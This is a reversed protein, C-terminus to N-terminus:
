KIQQALTQLQEATSEIAPTPLQDAIKEMELLEDLQENKIHLQACEDRLEIARSLFFHKFYKSRLLAWNKLEETTHPMHSIMMGRYQIGQVGERWGHAYLDNLIDQSLTLIRERLNGLAPAIEIITQPRQQSPTPRVSPRHPTKDFAIAPPSPPHSRPPYDLSVAEKSGLAKTVVFWYLSFTGAGILAVIVYSMKKKGATLLKYFSPAWSRIISSRSLGDMTIFVFICFWIQQLYPGVDFQLRKLTPEIVIGGVNAVATDRFFKWAFREPRAESM